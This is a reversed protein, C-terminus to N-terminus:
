CNRKKEKSGNERNLLLYGASVGAAFMVLGEPSFYADMKNSIILPVKNKKTASESIAFYAHTTAQANRTLTIGQIQSYISYLNITHHQHRIIEM